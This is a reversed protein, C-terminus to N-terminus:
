IRSAFPSPNLLLKGEDDGLVWFEFYGSVFFLCILTIRICWVYRILDYNEHFDWCWLLDISLVNLCVFSFEYKEWCLWGNWTFSCENFDTNLSRECVYYPM